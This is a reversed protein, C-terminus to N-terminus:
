PKAPQNQIFPMWKNGKWEADPQGFKPMPQDDAYVRGDRVTLAKITEKDSKDPFFSVALTNNKLEEPPDGWYFIILNHVHVYSGPPQVYVGWQLQMTGDIPTDPVLMLVTSNKVGKPAPIVVVNPQIFTNFGFLYTAHTSFVHKVFDESNSIVTQQAALDSTAKGLQARMSDFEPQLKHISELESESKVVETRVSSAETKLENQTKSATVKVDNSLRIANGASERNAAIAKASESQVEAISRASAQNINTRAINATSEIQEKAAQASKSLNFEKWGLWALLAIVLVVPLTLVKTVLEAWGWAREFVRIASEKELIDRDRVASVLERSVQGAIYDKLVLAAGCNGCFSHEPPNETECQFCRKEAM